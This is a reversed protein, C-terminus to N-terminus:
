AGHGALSNELETASLVSGECPLVCVVDLVFLAAEGRVLFM